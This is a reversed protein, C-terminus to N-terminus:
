SAASSVAESRGAWRLTRLARLTIWPSPDGIADGFDVHSADHYEHDRAWRGDPLRKSELENARPLARARTSM